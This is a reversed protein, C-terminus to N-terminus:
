YILNKVEAFNVQRPETRGLCLLIVFKDDMQVIGSLQGSQLKFAEEELKPQGGYKQIPPVEGRLARSSAEISYKEALQGFFAPSPNQRAQEWVEQARRLSELIIALCRVREGYNAEYGKHLDDDSVPVTGGVLKKLAVSPWVADRQYVELSVGQEETARRLWTEVDPSGDAKPPLMSAAARVIEQDMEAQNVTINKKKCAQELLRRNISGELVQEGYREICREALEQKTVPSNNIYAAIGPYQAELKPDGLVTMYQSSKELQKFIKGALEREKRDRINIELQAKVQELPIQRPPILQERYLIVYQNAVHVVPSVEGDKLGFATQEIQPNLVHMRIPQIVGKLSASAPDKSFQVALEGFRSPDSAAMSRVQRADAETTCTIIRAKVAPGYQTEYDRQLDEASVTLQSGALKRLALMPWIIDSSYQAPNLGREDKLIKLWQATDVNFRKAFREIEKNVEEQTVSIGQRQCELVILYKDKLKELVDKGYHRLCENAFEQRSIEEGNVTAVIRLQATSRLALTAADPNAKPAAQAAPTQATPQPGAAAQDAGWFYRMAACAVVIVVGGLTIALRRKWRRLPRPAASLDMQTM